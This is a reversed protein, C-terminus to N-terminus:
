RNKSAMMRRLICVPQMQETRNFEYSYFEQGEKDFSIMTVKEGDDSVEVTSFGNLSRWILSYPQDAFKFQERVNSAAVSPRIYHVGSKYLHEFSHCNGSFFIIHKGNSTHKELIPAVSEKKDASWRGHYGTSYVSVHALIFIWKSGANEIEKDLWNMQASNIELSPSAEDGNINLSIIRVDGYDMAFYSEGRPDIVESGDIYGHSFSSFYDYYTSPGGSPKDGTEHNGVAGIMPIRSLMPESLSFFSSNWPRTDGRTIIDGLYIFLDPEKKM